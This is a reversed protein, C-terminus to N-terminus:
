SYLYIFAPSMIIIMITFFVQKEDDFIKRMILFLLVINLIGITFPILRMLFLFNKSLSIAIDVFYIGSGLAEFINANKRVENIASIHEYVDYTAPYPNNRDRMIISLSLLTSGAMLLMLLYKWENQNMPKEARM